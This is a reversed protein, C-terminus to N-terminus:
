KLNIGKVKNKLSHGGTVKIMLFLVEKKKKKLSCAWGLATLRM